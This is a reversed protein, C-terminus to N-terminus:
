PEISPSRNKRIKTFSRLLEVLTRSQTSKASSVFRYQESLLILASNSVAFWSSLWILLQNKAILRNRFTCFVFYINKWLSVSSSFIGKFNGEKCSCPLMMSLSFEKFNRPTISSSCKVHFFCLFSISFLTEFLTSTRQLVFLNIFELLKHFM